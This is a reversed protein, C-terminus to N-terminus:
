QLFNNQHIQLCGKFIQGHIKSRPSHTSKPERHKWRKGQSRKDLATASSFSLQHQKLHIQIIKKFFIGIQDLPKHFEEFTTQIRYLFIERTNITIHGRMWRAYSEVEVINIHNTKDTGVFCTSSKKLIKFIIEIIKNCQTEHPLQTNDIKSLTEHELHHIIKWSIQIGKSWRRSHIFAPCWHGDKKQGGM